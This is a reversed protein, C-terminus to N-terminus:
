RVEHQDIFLEELTCPWAANSPIFDQVNSLESDAWAQWEARYALSDAVFAEASERTAFYAIPAEYAESVSYIKM